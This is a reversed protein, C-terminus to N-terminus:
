ASRASAPKAPRWGSRCSPGHRAARGPIEDFTLREPLGSCHLAENGDSTRLVVGEDNAAVMTAAVQRGQGHAPHHAHADRDQRHVQRLLNAPTLRDFDYNREELWARRHRAVVASQPLLTEVVGDFSLTVPGAPLDVTRTETILAFLDRYITVSM